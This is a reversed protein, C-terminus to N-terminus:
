REEKEPHPQGPEGPGARRVSILCLGLDRIRALLGHLAAQDLPGTIATQTGDSDVRLDGLWDAWRADLAGEVRIEYGAPSGADSM